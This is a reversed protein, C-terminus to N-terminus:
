HQHRQDYSTHFPSMREGVTLRCSDSSKLCFYSVLYREIWYQMRNWYYLMKKWCDDVEEVGVNSYCCGVCHQYYAESRHYCCCTGQHAELNFAYCTRLIRFGRGNPRRDCSFHSWVQHCGISGELLCDAFDFHHDVPFYYGYRLSSM